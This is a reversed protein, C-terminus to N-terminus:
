PWFVPQPGLPGLPKGIRVDLVWARIKVLFVESQGSDHPLNSWNKLYQSMGQGLLKIGWHGVKFGKSDFSQTSQIDLIRAENKLVLVEKIKIM